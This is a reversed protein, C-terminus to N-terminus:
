LPHFSAMLLGCLCWGSLCALSLDSALLPLVSPLGPLYHNVPFSTYTLSGWSHILTLLILSSCFFFDVLFRLRRDEDRVKRGEWIGGGAEWVLTWGTEPGRRVWAAPQAPGMLAQSM